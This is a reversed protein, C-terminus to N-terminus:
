LLYDTPLSIENKGSLEERIEQEQTCCTCSLQFTELIKAFVAAAM